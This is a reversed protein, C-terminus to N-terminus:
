EVVQEITWDVLKKYEEFPLDGYLPNGNVFITPTVTIGYKRGAKFDATVKDKYKGSQLCESFTKIDLQLETAYKVLSLTDAQGQREFVIKAYEWFKGQDNACYAAQASIKDNAHRNTPMPRFAIKIKDGYEKVVQQYAGLFFKKTFACQFDGFIIFEIKSDAPGFVPHDGVGLPESPGRFSPVIYILLLTALAVAGWKLYGGWEMKKQLAEAAARQKERDGEKEQRRLEKQDHSSLESEDAM